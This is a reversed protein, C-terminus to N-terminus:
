HTTWRASHTWAFIERCNRKWKPCSSFGRKDLSNKLGSTDLLKLSEYYTL